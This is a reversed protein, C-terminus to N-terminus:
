QKDSLRGHERLLAALDREVPCVACRPDPREDEEGDPGWETEVRHAVGMTNYARELLDLMREREADVPAKEVLERAPQFKAAPIAESARVRWVYNECWVTYTRPTEPM